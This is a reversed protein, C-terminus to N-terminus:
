LIDYIGNAELAAKRDICTGCKGCPEDGGEYCSWTHEFDEHTMGAAIGEAVVGAKNLRAWPGFMQVEHGSGEWVAAAMSAIFVETCDPYANGAADDAHAGYWIINCGEQIAISAAVSLFLGNRFPVYTSVTGPKKALQEAYSEHPIDGGGELLTCGKYGAFISSLDLVKYNEIGLRDMQWQFCEMEKHHKQGYYMNLACVNHAGFEKVAKHLLCTSDLGGSALVLVKNM